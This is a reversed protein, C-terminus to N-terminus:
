LSGGLAVIATALNDYLKQMSPVYEVTIEGDGVINTVGEYSLNETNSRPVVFDSVTDGYEIQVSFHLIDGTTFAGNNYDFGIRMTFFEAGEVDEIKYETNTKYNKELISLGDASFYTIYCGSRTLKDCNIRFSLNKNYKLKEGLYPAYTTGTGANVGFYFTNNGDGTYEVTYTGNNYSVNCKTKRISDNLIDEFMNQNKVTVQSDSTIKLVGNKATNKLNVIGTGTSTKVLSPMLMSLDYTNNDVASKEAKDGLLNDTETKNYHHEELYAVSPYQIHKIGNGGPDLKNELSEKEALLEDIKNSPYTKTDSPTDSLISSVRNSLNTIASALFYNVNVFDASDRYILSATAPIASSTIKSDSAKQNVYVKRLNTCGTFTAGIQKVKCSIFATTIEKNNTFVGAGLIGDPPVPIYNNLTDDANFAVVFTFDNATNATTVLEDVSELSSINDVLSQVKDANAEIDAVDKLLQTLILYEPAKVIDKSNIASGVVIVTFRQTTVIKEGDQITLECLLEGPTDLMTDTLKVIVTNGIIECGNIAKTVGNNSAKIIATFQSELTVITGSDTITCDIYRTGSDGQHVMIPVRNVVDNIELTIAQHKISLSM